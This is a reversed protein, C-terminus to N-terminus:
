CYYYYWTLIKLKINELIKLKINESDCASVTDGVSLSTYWYRAGKWGKEKYYIDPHSPLNNPRDGSSSWDQWEEWSNIDLSRVFKLADKFEMFDKGHNRKKGTGLWYGM